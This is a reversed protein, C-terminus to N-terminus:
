RHRVTTVGPEPLPGCCTQPHPRKSISDPHSRVPLPRLMGVVTGPCRLQQSPLRVPARSGRILTTEPKPRTTPHAVQASSKLPAGTLHEAKTSVLRVGDGPYYAASRRRM